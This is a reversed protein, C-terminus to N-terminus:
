DQAVTQLDVKFSPGMTSCVSVKKMYTGKIGAPRAKSLTSLVLEANEVLKTADFSVKGIGLHIIGSKDARYEIQGSKAASIADAVNMTVTGLKPNPMLGKPGLVKGLRGVVGMMDPTAICREFDIKGSTIDDILEEGGVFEAGAKTAEEAKPGKAFVCVRTTKGTGHPLTLMGRLAQEAKRVDLNLNVAIEMTEDFKAFARDKINKVADQLNYEANIDLGEYAKKLNKGTRAM